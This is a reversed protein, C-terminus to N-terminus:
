SGPEDNTKEAVVIVFGADLYLGDLPEELHKVEGPKQFLTSIIREGMFGAQITLRSVENCNYFNAYKYIRHGEMKKQQYQQGWPNDKLIVGLVLKGEPKLIRHAEKLVKLPSNLFCLTTILFVTGISAEEFIKQEGRGWFTNIGRQRAIKVLNISPEIGRDIGLARAFRGSGVGIEIWPKPLVPLIKQFARVEIDFILKGEGDFWADYEAALDNFPNVEMDRNGAGPDIAHVLDETSM